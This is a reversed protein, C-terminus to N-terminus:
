LKLALAKQTQLNALHFQWTFGGKEDIDFHTIGISVLGECQRVGFKTSWELSPISVALWDGKGCFAEEHTHGRLIINSRPQLDRESWLMNQIKGRSLPNFIGSPSSSKSLKHKCDVICGNVNIWEHGGIKTAGVEEAIDDEFDVIDGCHYPTGYTMVVQKAEVYNIVECAMKCQMKQDPEILENGGNKIGRGDINDGLHILIDIPKLADVTKKYWDWMQQQLMMFKNRRKINDGKENNIYRLQWDSPTLGAVHGSHNDGIVLIRKTKSM